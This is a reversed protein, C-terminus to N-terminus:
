CSKKKMQKAAPSVKSMQKTPPTKTSTMSSKKVVEKKMQKMPLNKKMQAPPNNVVTARGTRILKEKGEEDLKDAPTGGGLTNLTKATAAREERTRANRQEVEKKLKLAGPSQAGGLGLKVEKVVNGESDIERAFSGAIDFKHDTIIPIVENTKFNRSVGMSTDRGTQAKPDAAAITKSKNVGDTYSKNLEIDTETKTQKMASGSMLTPPIGRGTQLFPARGNPLKFAM